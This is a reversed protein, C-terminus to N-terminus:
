VWGCDYGGCGGRHGCAAKHPGLTLHEPTLLGTLREAKRVLLLRLVACLAAARRPGDRGDGDPGGMEVDLLGAQQRLQQEAQQGAAEFFGELAAGHIHALSYM